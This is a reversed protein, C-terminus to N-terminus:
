ALHGDSVEGGGVLRRGAGETARVPSKARSQSAVDAGTDQTRSDHSVRFPAQQSTRSVSRNNRHQESAAGCGHEQPTSQLKEVDSAPLQVSARAKTPTPDQLGLLVFQSLFVQIGELSSFSGWLPTHTLLM